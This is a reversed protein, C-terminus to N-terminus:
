STFYAGLIYLIFVIISTIVYKCHFSELSDVKGSIGNLQTEFKSIQENTFLGIADFIFTPSTSMLLELTYQNKYITHNTCIIIIEYSKNLHYDLDPNIKNGNWFSVYPDHLAISCNCKSLYDYLPESPSNRVDGVDGKYSVGLFLINTNRIESYHEKLFEFAYRPMQDNTSIASVSKKLAEKGGILNQRSWSALLSDKTLCYGGVGIGPYMMNSHTPRLRIADIVEYIDVQSEEAFRSWEVMFAINMARYSNELVKAMETAETCKLRTLPYEDTRIISHLFSEVSDTSKQDIGSYVRYFSQISDIYDPGPMVREYSHGIRVCDISLGRKELSKMIIPKVIKQCTGPPVTTEVLILVDEKCYNGITTIAKKFSTLDVNFDDTDNDKNIEVKM